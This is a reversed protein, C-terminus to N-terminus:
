DELLRVLKIFDNKFRLLTKLDPFGKNKLQILFDVKIDLIENNSSQFNKEEYISELKTLLDSYKKLESETSFKTGDKAEYKRSPKLAKWGFILLSVTALLIFLLIFLLTTDM